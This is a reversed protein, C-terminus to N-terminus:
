ILSKYPQNNYEEFLTKMGERERERERGMTYTIIQKDNGRQNCIPLENKRKATFPLALKRKEKIKQRILKVKRKKKKRKCCIPTCAHVCVGM